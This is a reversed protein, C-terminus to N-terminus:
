LTESKKKGREKRDGRGERKRAYNTGASWTAFVGHSEELARARDLDLSSAAALPPAASATTSATTSAPVVIVVVLLLLTLLLLLLLLLADSAAAQSPPSLPSLPLPASLSPSPSPSLSLTLSLSLASLSLTQTRTRPTRKRKGRQKEELEEAVEVEKKRGLVEKSTIKSEGTSSLLKKKGKKKGVVHLLPGLRVRWTPAVPSFFPFSVPSFRPSFVLARCSQCLNEKQGDFILITQNTVSAVISTACEASSGRSLFFQVFRRCEAVHEGESRENIQIRLRYGAPM